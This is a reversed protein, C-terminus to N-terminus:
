LPGACRLYAGSTCLAACMAVATALGLLGARKLGAGAKVAPPSHRGM